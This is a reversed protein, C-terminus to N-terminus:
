SRLWQAYVMPLTVVKHTDNIDVVHRKHRSYTTVLADQLFVLELITPYQGISEAQYLVAFLVELIAIYVCIDAHLSCPEEPTACVLAMELM